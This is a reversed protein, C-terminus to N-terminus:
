FVYGLSVSARRVGTRAENHPQEVDAKLAVNAIPKWVAGLTVIRRDNAPDTAFGAPVRAQTQLREYRVFPELEGRAGRALRLVDYGAQLYWGTLREGISATGTLGRVQNLEAAQGVTARAYLGRLNLGHARYEAHGEWITTRARLTGGTALPAGQGSNGAYVGMGVTLGLLGVYDVRGALAVNEALARSGNQRGDRLGGAGFGGAGSSGGGVADFGNVLYAQYQIPGVEGYAGAGNERWTSPILRRETEPRSSGLFTTPEHLGNLFGLPVLLLGARLGLGETWRYDLYAFEVSVSGTRDTSGHEFETESNFLLRDGFKYGVYVIARLADWQDRLGSPSGDQRAAAVHQFLLEGYGGVSVGRPTRYVKSAAPGFGAVASDAEVTLERGLRLAELERTIAEVQATLRAIATSDREQASATGAGLVLASSTVLVRRWSRQM